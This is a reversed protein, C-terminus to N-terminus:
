PSLRALEVRNGVGLKRYVNSLHLKVTSRSVFLREAIQPNSMGEAALQAVQLEVPTLSEWGAPPRDRPGRGRRAYAIAEELTLAEGQEWAARWRAENGDLGAAFARLEDKTLPSPACELRAWAAAAAGALRAARELEGGHAEALALEELTEAAERDFSLEACTALADHLLSRGGEVDGARVAAAGRLRKAIAAQRESGSREAIADLERSEAEAQALDGQGLAARALAEHALALTHLHPM